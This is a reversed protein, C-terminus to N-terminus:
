IVTAIIMTHKLFPASKFSNFRLLPSQSIQVPTIPPPNLTRKVRITENIIAAIPSIESDSSVINYKRLLSFEITEDIDEHFHLSHPASLSPLLITQLVQPVYLHNTSFIFLPQPVVRFLFLSDFRLSLASPESKPIHLFDSKLVETM